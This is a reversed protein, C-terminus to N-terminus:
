ESVKFRYSVAQELGSFDEPLPPLPLSQTLANMASQSLEMSSSEVVRPGDIINGERDVTFALLVSLGLPIGTPKQWNREVKAQVLGAWANLVGPLGEVTTGRPGEVAPGHFTGHKSPDMGFDSGDGNAAWTDTAKAKKTIPGSDTLADKELKAEADTKTKKKTDKKKDDKKNKDKKEEEKKKPKEKPKEEEKKEKVVKKEPKKDVKKPKEIDPKPKEIEKAPEEKKPKPPEKKEEKPPDPKPEEAPPPPPPPPAAAEAKPESKQEKAAPAGQESDIGGGLKKNVLQMTIVLPKVQERAAVYGIFTFLAVHILLSIIVARKLRSTGDFNPGIQEYIRFM